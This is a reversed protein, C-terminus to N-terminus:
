PPEHKVRGVLFQRENQKQEKYIELPERMEKPISKEDIDYEKVYEYMKRGM